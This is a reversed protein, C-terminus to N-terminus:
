YSFFFVLDVGSREVRRVLTQTATDGQSMLTQFRLFDTLQYELTFQSLNDAGVGQTLKVYLRQGLQQGITVEAGQGGTSEPATQIEFTDLNLAKGISDALKSAVFGTALASARQALTAQNGEGLQNAPQNFIILALIDAQDLPPRSSLQLDPRRATGGLHVQTEVGSITRTATVDLSPNVPVFGDFRVRGDRQIDFRRGQFDYTGRVTTVQGLLRLQRGPQKEFRLDGGLTVNVNGLGVAGGSPRIDKGKIVLAPPVRLRVTLLTADWPGTPQGRRVRAPGGPAQPAGAGTPLPPVALPSAVTGAAAEAGPTPRGQVESSGQPVSSAVPRSGRVPTPGANMPQTSYASSSAEELVKDLNVEATDVSLDGEVRPARVDGGVNVSASLTARGIDNHLVELGRSELSLALAGLQKQRFQVDGSLKLTKGRGDALSFGNFVARDSELDLRGNLSKYSVGTPQVTFAGGTVSVGGSMKPDAATGTVRVHAEVTGSAKTVAGTFGQVLGLDIPSSDITLQVPEKAAAGTPASWMSTPLSGKAGIWAKPSQFLRVDLAIRGATYDVSGGLTEYRFERFAGNDIAFDGKALLASRPGTLRAAANLVGGLGREGIIWTDLRSLDVDTVSASLDSAKEGIVGEANIAQPGSVLRVNKLTINGGGYQVVPQHGPPITWEAGQSTFSFRTLHVEQHDTHLLLTGVARAERPASRVTADFQLAQNAYSGKLQLLNVDLSGLKLLKAEGDAGVTARAMDLDPVTVQYRADANLARNDGYGIDSGKLTGETRLSARNGTVTGAVTVAGALPQGVLRGIMTLKPSTMQYAFNSAGSEGLALTGSAKVALDPGAVDLRTVHATSASYQGEITGREISLDNITSPSLDLSLSGSANDPTIEGLRQLTVDSHLEGGVKGRLDKRGTLAAPDLDIFSGSARFRGGGDALHAETEMAPLRIGGLTSNSVSASADLTLEAVSTGQGKASFRGNISSAYRDATLTSIGFARGFRQLDLGSASGDAAYALLRGENSFSATTGEGFTAGALTSTHLRATGSLASGVGKLTYDFALRSEAPPVRLSRPLKRLDLGEVDGRLDLAVGRVGATTTRGPQITGSVTANAGYAAARTRVLTVLNRAEVRGSLTVNSASYGAVDVREARASYSGTVPGRGKQAPFRVDFTTDGTIASKAAPTRTVPALNFSTLHVTGAVRREPGTLNAAVRGAAGGASSSVDFEFRADALPGRVNVRFAPRLPIGELAPVFRAVEPISVGDSDAVLALTPTSLFQAVYGEAHLSSQGTRVRLRDIWLADDRVALKGSLSELSLDPATSTFSLHGIEVSYHVPEYAFSFRADLHEISSPVEGSTGITSGGAAGGGPPAPRLAPADIAIHGDVISIDRITVPRGPGRRRKEQREKKVLNALNWTGAERRMMVLPRELRIHDISANGAVFRLLSYDVGARRVQVVREGGQTVGIDELEVGFFLNGDLRGITLRGNLYNDAQREVFGRLWDRFWATQSVILAAATAGVLLTAVFVLVQAARRVIRRM